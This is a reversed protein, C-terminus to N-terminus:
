VRTGDVVPRVMAVGLRTPIPGTVDLTGVVAGGLLVENETGLADRGEDASLLAPWFAAPIRESVLDCIAPIETAQTAITAIADATAAHQQNMRRRRCFSIYSSSICCDFGRKEFGLSIFSM